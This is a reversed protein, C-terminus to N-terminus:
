VIYYQIKTDADLEDNKFALKAHEFAKDFDGQETYYGALSFHVFGNGPDIELIKQYYKLANVSDGQSQYMEAMLGYYQPETPKSDILRQIEEFAKDPQNMKLYLDYYSRIAYM